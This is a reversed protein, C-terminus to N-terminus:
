TKLKTTNQHIPPKNHIPVNREVHQYSEGVEWRRESVIRQMEDSGLDEM